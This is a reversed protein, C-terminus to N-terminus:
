RITANQLTAASLAPNDLTFNRMAHAMMGLASTGFKGDINAEIRQRLERYGRVALIRRIEPLTAVKDARLMEMEATLNVAIRKEWTPSSLPFLEGRDLRHLSPDFTPTLPPTNSKGFCSSDIAELRWFSALEASLDHDDRYTAVVAHRIPSHPLVDAQRGILVKSYM